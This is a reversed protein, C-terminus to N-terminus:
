PHGTSCPMAPRSGVGAASGPFGAPPMARRAPRQRDHVVFLGALGRLRSVTYQGRLVATSGVSAAGPHKAAGAGGRDCRAWASSTPARSRTNPSKPRIDGGDVTRLHRKAKDLSGRLLHWQALCFQAEIHQHPRESATTLVDRHLPKGLFMEILPYPWAKDKLQAANEALEAGANEGARARGLYHFLMPYPDDERAGIGM